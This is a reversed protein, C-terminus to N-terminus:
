EHSHLWRCRPAACRYTGQWLIIDRNWDVSEPEIEIDKPTTTLKQAQRQDVCTVGEDQRKKVATKHSLCAKQLVRRVDM